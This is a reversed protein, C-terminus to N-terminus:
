LIIKGFVVALVFLVTGKFIEGSWFNYAVQVNILFLILIDFFDKM